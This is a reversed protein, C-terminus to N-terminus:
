DLLICEVMVIDSPTGGPDDLFGVLEVVSRPTQEALMAFRNSAMWLM